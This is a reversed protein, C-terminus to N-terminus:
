PNSMGARSLLGRVAEPTFAQTRPIRIRKKSDNTVPTLPVDTWYCCRRMILNQENTTIWNVENRPLCCVVLVCFTSGEWTALKNYADAEMDYIIHEPTMESTITAKIQTMFMFGVSRFKGNGLRRVGQIYADVGYEHGQPEILQAGANAVVAQVYALSLREQLHTTPIPM